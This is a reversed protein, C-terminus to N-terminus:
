DESLSWYFGVTPLKTDDLWIRHKKLEIKTQLVKNNRSYNQKYELQELAPKM